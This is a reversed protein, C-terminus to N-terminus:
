SHNDELGEGELNTVPFNESRVASMNYKILTYHQLNVHKVSEPLTKSKKSLYKDKIKSIGL